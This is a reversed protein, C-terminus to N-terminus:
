KIWPDFVTGVFSSYEVRSPADFEPHDLQLTQEDPNFPADDIYRGDPLISM